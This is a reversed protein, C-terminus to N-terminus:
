MALALFATGATGIAATILTPRRYNPALLGVILGGVVSLFLVSGVVMLYTRFALPGHGKHLEMLSYQLNPENLTARVGEGTVQFDVFTRSTPRTMFNNGKGKIYEFEVDINQAALLARVDEELTPSKPDLMTGAPLQIPTREVKEEFGAVHMGGSIAVLLFAPALFSALYLHALVLFRRLKLVNMDSVM